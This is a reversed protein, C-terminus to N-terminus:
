NSNKCGRDSETALGCCTRVQTGTNIATTYHLGNVDMCASGNCQTTTTGNEAQALFFLNLSTLSLESNSENTAIVVNFVLLVVIIVVGFSSLIKNKM